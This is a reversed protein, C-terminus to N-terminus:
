IWLVYMRGTADCTWVMHLFQELEGYLDAFNVQELDRL